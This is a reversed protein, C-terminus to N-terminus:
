VSAQSHHDSPRDPFDYEDSQDLIPCYGGRGDKTGNSMGRSLGYDLDGIVEYAEFADIRGPVVKDATVRLHYSLNCSFFLLLFVFICMPISVVVAVRKKFYIWVEICSSCFYVIWGAIFFCFVLFQYDRMIVTARHLDMQGKGGRLALGPGWVTLTTSILIVSLEFGIAGCTLFLYIFEVAFPPRHREPIPTTLQCFAFGALMAAQGVMMSYNQCYWNVEMQRIEVQKRGMRTVAVNKSLQLM